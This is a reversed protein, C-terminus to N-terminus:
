ANRIAPSLNQKYSLEKKDPTFSLPITEGDRKQKESQSIFTRRMLAALPTADM